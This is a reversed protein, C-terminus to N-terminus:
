ENINRGFAVAEADFQKIGEAQWIQIRARAATKPASQRDKLSILKKYIKNAYVKKKDLSKANYCGVAEWTYGHSKVCDALIWAGVNINTCPDALQDWLAKGLKKYWGSNIGMVGFDYTGNSNYHIARPKLSSEQQAIARLLSAQVGYIAAADDFCYDYAFTAPAWFSAIVLAWTLRIFM